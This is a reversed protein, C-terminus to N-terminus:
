PARPTTATASSGTPPWSCSAWCSPAPRATTPSPSSSTPIAVRDVLDDVAQEDHAYVYLEDGDWAYPHRGDAARTSTTVPDDDWESLDYAVQDHEDDLPRRAPRRGRGRRDRARQRGAAEDAAAVHLATGEWGHPIAAERLRDTVASREMDSWEDLDFM